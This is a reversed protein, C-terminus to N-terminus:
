GRTVQCRNAPLRMRVVFTQGTDHQVVAWLTDSRSFFRPLPDAPVPISLDSCRTVRSRVDVISAFYKGTFLTQTLDLDGHVVLVEHASAFRLYLPISSKFLAARGQTTDRAATELLDNRAGRRSVRPMAVSDVPKSASWFYLWDSAEFAAARSEAANDFMVSGFPGVLIPHQRLVRPVPGTLELTHGDRSVATISNTGDPSVAGALLTDNAYRISLATIPLKTSAVHGGDSLRFLDVQRRAVNSVAVLSDGVVSIDSASRLEGPGDGPKGIRGTPRGTPDFRWVAKNGNDAVLFRHDREVILGGPRAVFESDSAVLEVSDMVVISEQKRDARPQGCSVVGLITFAACALLKGPSGHSAVGVRISHLLKLTPHVLVYSDM